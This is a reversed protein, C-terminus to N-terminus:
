LKQPSFCIFAVIFQKRKRTFSSLSSDKESLNVATVRLLRKKQKRSLPPWVTNYWASQETVQMQEVFRSLWHYWYSHKDCQQFIEINKQHRGLANLDVFLFIFFFLLLFFNFSSPSITAITAIVDAQKEFGTM